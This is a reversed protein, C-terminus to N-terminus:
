EGLLKWPTPIPYEGGVVTVMPMEVVLEQGTYGKSLEEFKNRFGCSTCMDVTMYGSKDSASSLPVESSDVLTVGPGKPVTNPITEGEFESPPASASRTHGPKFSDYFCCALFLGWFLKTWM